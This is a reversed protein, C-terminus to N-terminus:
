RRKYNYISRWSLISITYLIYYLINFV